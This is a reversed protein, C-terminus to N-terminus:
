AKPTCLNAWIYQITLLKHKELELTLKGNASRIALARKEEYISTLPDEKLGLFGVLKRAEESEAELSIPAPSPDDAEDKGDKMKKEAKAMELKKVQLENIDWEWDGLENRQRSRLIVLPLQSKKKTTKKAAGSKKAARQTQAASLVILTTEGARGALEELRELSREGRSVYKAGPIARALALGLTRIKKDAHKSTTLWM